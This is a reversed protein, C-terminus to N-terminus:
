FCIMLSFSSHCFKVNIILSDVPQYLSSIESNITLSDSFM